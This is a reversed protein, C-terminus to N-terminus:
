ASSDGSLHGPNGTSMPSDPWQALLSDLRKRAALLQAQLLDHEHLLGRVQELLLANTRQLEEHRLLLREVRDAILDTTSPIGM